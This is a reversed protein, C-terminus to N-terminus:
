FGVAINNDTISVAKLVGDASKYYEVSVNDNVELEDLIIDEVGSQIRTAQDVTFRVQQSGDFIVLVSGVSDVQTVIGQRSQTQSAGQEQQCFSMDPAMLFIVVVCIRFWIKM